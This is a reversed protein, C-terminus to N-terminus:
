PAAARSAKGPNPALAACRIQDAIEKCCRACQPRCGCMELAAKPTRAGAEIAQAIQRERVGHCTCVFMHGHM